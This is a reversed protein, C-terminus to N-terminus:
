IAVACSQLRVKQVMSRVSTSPDEDPVAGFAESAKKVLEDHNVAGTGM